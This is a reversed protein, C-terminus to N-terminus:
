SSFYFCQKGPIRGVDTPVKVNQMMEDIKLLKDPSLIGIKCWTKFVHKATGLYLNHMPDITHMRVPNYYPLRHLESYRVGYGKEIRDVEAQNRATLTHSAYNKHDNGTRLPWNDVDSGSYDTNDGTKVFQKL